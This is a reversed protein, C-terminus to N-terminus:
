QKALEYFGHGIDRLRGQRVLERWVAEPYESPAPIAHISSGEGKSLQSHGGIRSEDDLRDLALRKRFARFAKRCTDADPVDAPEAPAAPTRLQDILELLSPLDRMGVVHSVRGAPLDTGGLLRYVQKWEGSARRPDPYSRIATVLADLQTLIDEPM